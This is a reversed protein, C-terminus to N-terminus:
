QFELKNIAEIYATVDDQYSMDPDYYHIRIHKRIASAIKSSFIKDYKKSWSLDTDNFIDNAKKILKRLKNPQDVSEM